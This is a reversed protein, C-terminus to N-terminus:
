PAVAVIVNASIFERSPTAVRSYLTNEGVEADLESIEGILKSLSLKGTVDSKQNRSEEGNRGGTGESDRERGRPLPMLGTGLDFGEGVVRGEGFLGPQKKPVGNKVRM